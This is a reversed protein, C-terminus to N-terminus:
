TWEEGEGGKDNEEGSERNRGERSSGEVKLGM